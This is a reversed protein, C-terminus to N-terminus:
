SLRKKLNIAPALNPNIRLAKDAHEIAQAQNGLAAHARALNVITVPSAIQMKSAESVVQSLQGKAAVDSPNQEVRTVLGELNRDLELRKQLNIAEANRPAMQLAKNINQEAVDNDGLAIQARAISTLMKPDQYPRASLKAVENSISERLAKDTPNSLLLQTDKELKVGDKSIEITKYAPFGIMVISLAFFLFLKGIEKGKMALIILLLLTVVFLLTGAVLM